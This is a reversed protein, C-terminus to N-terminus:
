SIAKWDKDSLIMGAIDEKSMELLREALARQNDAYAMIFFIEGASRENDEIIQAFTPPKKRFFRNFRSGKFEELEKSIFKDIRRARTEDINTITELARRGIESAPLVITAM